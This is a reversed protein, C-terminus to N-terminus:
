QTPYAGACGCLVCLYLVSIPKENTEVLQARFRYIIRTRLEAANRKTRRALALNRDSDERFDELFIISLWRHMPRRRRGILWGDPSVGYWVVSVFDRYVSLTYRCDAGVEGRIYHELTRRTKIEVVGISNIVLEYALVPWVWWIPLTGPFAHVTNLYISYFLIMNYWIYITATPDGPVRRSRIMRYLLIINIILERFFQNRGRENPGYM